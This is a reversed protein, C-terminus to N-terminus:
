KRVLTTVRVGQVRYRHRAAWLLLAENGCPSELEISPLGDM